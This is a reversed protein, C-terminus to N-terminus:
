PRNEEQYAEMAASLVQKVAAGHAQAASSCDSFEPCATLVEAGRRGVKIRIPGYATEVTVHSRTLKSRQCLRRRLGFTTTERFFIAEAAPADAPVCLASLMWAPRSKKMAIPATWADVCGAALLQEITSGLVEGTCDDINASLEVVTDVDGIEAPTGLFVRLLNPMDHSDRTGAGFGVAKVDMAALPGYSEALTTLVAAATPTVLEGELSSGCVKAGVLLQATAPAPCPLQGHASRIFGRGCPIESCLVKSVGLMELALCAGVVDIISDVAGVEHFHVEEVPVNHVKSEAEALRQFIRKAREAARPPLKAGDLLALIDSLHRHPHDQHDEVRVNFKTGALGARHVVEAEVRYGKLDLRALSAALSSVDAGAGLLAGVIMDGGAGAFCDFYAITM